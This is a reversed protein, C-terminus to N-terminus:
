NSSAPKKETKAAPRYTPKDEQIFCAIKRPSFDFHIKFTLAPKQSKAECPTRPQVNKNINKKPKM